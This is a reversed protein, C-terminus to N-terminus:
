RSAMFTLSVRDETRPAKVRISNNTTMAMMAMRAAINSGANARALVLAWDAWHKLLRLCSWIEHAMYEFSKLEFSAGFQSLSVREQISPVWSM